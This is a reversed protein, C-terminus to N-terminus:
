RGPMAVYERDFRTLTTRAMGLSTSSDRVQSGKPLTLQARSKARSVRKREDLCQLLKMLRYAGKKEDFSSAHDPYPWRDRGLAPNSSGCSNEKSSGDSVM